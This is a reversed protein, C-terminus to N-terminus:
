LYRSYIGKHQEVLIQALNQLQVHAQHLIAVSKGMGEVVVASMEKSLLLITGNNLTQCWM